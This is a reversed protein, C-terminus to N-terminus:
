GLTLSLRILELHQIVVYAMGSKPPLAALLEPVAERGGASAGIAVIPLVM